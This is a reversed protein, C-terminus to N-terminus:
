QPPEPLSQWHTPACPLITDHTETEEYWGEPAYDGEGDEWDLSGEVYYTALITRWHGHSNRFGALVKVGKPATEIPQWSM